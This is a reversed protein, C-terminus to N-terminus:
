IVLRGEPIAGIQAVCQCAPSHAEGQYSVGFFRGIAVSGTSNKAFYRVVEGIGLSVMSCVPPTTLVMSQRNKITSGLGLKLFFWRHWAM